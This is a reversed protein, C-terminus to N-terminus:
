VTVDGGRSRSGASVILLLLLVLVCMEYQIQCIGRRAVPLGRCLRNNTCVTGSITARSVTLVFEVPLKLVFSKM